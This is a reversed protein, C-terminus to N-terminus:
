QPYPTWLSALSKKSDFYIKFNIHALASLQPLFKTFNFCPSMWTCCWLTNWEMTSNLHKSFSMKSLKRAQIQNFFSKMLSLLGTKGLDLKNQSNKLQRYLTKHVAQRLLRHRLSLFRWDWNLQSWYVCLGLFIPVM